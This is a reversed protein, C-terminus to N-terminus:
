FPRILPLSRRHHPPCKKPHSKPTIQSCCHTSQPFTVTINSIRYTLLKGRHTDNSKLFTRTIHAVPSCKKRIAIRLLPSPQRLHHERVCPPQLYPFTMHHSWLQTTPANSVRLGVRCCFGYNLYELLSPLFIEMESAQDKMHKDWLHEFAFRSAAAKEPIDRSDRSPEIRSVYHSSSDMVSSKLARRIDALDMLKVKPKVQSVICDRLRDQGSGQPIFHVACKSYTDCKNSIYPTVKGRPPPCWGRNGFVHL